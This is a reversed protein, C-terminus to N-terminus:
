PLTTYRVSSDSALEPQRLSQLCDLKCISVHRQFHFRVLSLVQRFVCLNFYFVNLVILQLFSQLYQGLQLSIKQFIQFLMRAFTLNLGSFVLLFGIPSIVPGACTANDPPCFFGMAEKRWFILLPLRSIVLQASFALHVNSRGSSNFFYVKVLIFCFLVFWFILCLIFIFLYFM